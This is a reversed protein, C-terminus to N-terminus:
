VHLRRLEREYDKRGLKLSTESEPKEKASKKDHKSSKSSM